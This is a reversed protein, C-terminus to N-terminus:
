RFFRVTHGIILFQDPYLAFHEFRKGTSSEADTKIVPVLNQSMNRATHAYMIDAEQRTIAHRELHAWVIERLSSDDQSVSLYQSDIFTLADTLFIQAFQLITFRLPTMKTM